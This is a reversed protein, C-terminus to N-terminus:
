AGQPIATRSRRATVVITGSTYASCRARASLYGSVNMQWIGAATATTTRTPTAAPPVVAAAVWNTGDVTVEFTVTATFTGTVQWAIAGVEASLPVTVAQASATLSGTSTLSVSSTTQGMVPVASMVVMLLALGLAIGTRRGVNAGKVKSEEEFQIHM